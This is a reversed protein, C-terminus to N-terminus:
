IYINAERTDCWELRMSCRRDHTEDAGSRCWCRLLCGAVEDTCPAGTPLLLSMAWSHLGMVDCATRPPDATM